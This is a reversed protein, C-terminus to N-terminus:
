TRPKAADVAELLFKRLRKLDRTKNATRAAGLATLTRALDPDGAIRTLVVAPTRCGAGRIRRLLEIGVPGTVIEDDFLNNEDMLLDLLLVDSTQASGLVERWSVAAVDVATVDDGSDTLVQLTNKLLNIQDEVVLVKV